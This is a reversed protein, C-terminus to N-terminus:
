MRFTSNLGFWFMWKVLSARFFDYFSVQFDPEFGQLQMILVEKQFFWKREFKMRKEAQSFKISYKAQLVFISWIQNYMKTPLPSDNLEKKKNPQKFMFSIKQGEEVRQNWWWWWRKKKRCDNKLQMVDGGWCISLLPKNYTSSLSSSPLPQHNPKSWTLWFQGRVMLSHEIIYVPPSNCQEASTYHNCLLM